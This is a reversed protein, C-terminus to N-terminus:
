AERARGCYGLPVRSGDNLAADRKTRWAMCRTGICMANPHLTQEHDGYRNISVSEGSGEVDSAWVRAFPCWMNKAQQEIVLM